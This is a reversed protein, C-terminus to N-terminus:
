TCTCPVLVVYYLYSSLTGRMEVNAKTRQEIAKARTAAIGNRRQRTLTARVFFLSHWKVGM